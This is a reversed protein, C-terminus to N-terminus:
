SIAEIMARVKACISISLALLCSTSIIRRRIMSNESSSFMSPTLTSLKSALSPVRSLSRPPQFIEPASVNSAFNPV